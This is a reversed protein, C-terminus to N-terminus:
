RKPPPPTWWWPTAVSGTTAPTLASTSEAALRAGRGNGCRSADDPEPVARIGFSLRTPHDQILGFDALALPLRTSAQMEHSHVWSGVYAQIPARPNLALIKKFLAASQQAQNLVIRDAFSWWLQLPVCSAAISRVYTVPSRVAYARPRSRPTGGLEARALSQLTRGVPGHFQKHCANDCPIRPFNRYQRAFDTVSDFAAAGALLGPHRALLLLTEQGGMSGGIAYVRHADIRLWPLTRRAITPMRALDDIQGVSGWSFRSLKRGAGEPSIVAFMGRAPLSGWLRANAHASVGRGHPSIVLPIRIHQKPGYWAPLVIYAIRREGDHARYSVKWTRVEKAGRKGHYPISTFIRVESSTSRALGGPPTAAVLAVLVPVLLVLKGRV